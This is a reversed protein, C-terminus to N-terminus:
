VMKGEKRVCSCVWRDASALKLSVCRCWRGDVPSCLWFWLGGVSGVIWLVECVLAGEILMIEPVEKTVKAM